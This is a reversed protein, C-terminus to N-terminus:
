LPPHEAGGAVVFFLLLRARGLDGGAGAGVKLAADNVLCRSAEHKPGYRSTVACRELLAVALSAQGPVLIAFCWQATSALTASTAM